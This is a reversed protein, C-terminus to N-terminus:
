SAEGEGGNEEGATVTVSTVQDGEELEICKVGIAARTQTSRIDEAYLRILKGQATVIVVASDDRVHCTNVVPGNKPGVRLNIIGRVFNPMMPVETIGDFEIIERIFNIQIGFLDEGLIFTVCHFKQGGGDQGAPQESNRM